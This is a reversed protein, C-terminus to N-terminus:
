LMEDDEDLVFLKIRGKRMERRRIMEYVRGNNGVVVNVGMEIKRMEERVNKGGICEKWKESMLEGLDIVVKKIKKDLERKKDIIMDKWENKYKDIKKM